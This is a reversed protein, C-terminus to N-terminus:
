SERKYMYLLTTRTGSEWGRWQKGASFMLFFCIIYIINIQKGIVAMLITRFFFFFFLEPFMILLKKVGWKTKLDFKNLRCWSCHYRGCFVPTPAWQNICVTKDEGITIPKESERERITKIKKKQYLSTEWKRKRQHTTFINYFLLNKGCTCQRGCKPKPTKRKIM